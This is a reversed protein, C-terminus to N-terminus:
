KPLLVSDVSYLVGNFQPFSAEATSATTGKGDLVVFNGSQSSVTLLGGQVTKLEAKGQGKRVMQKLTKATIAGPVVHYTLLAKLAAAHGPMLLDELQGPPLKDFADNSPAFVTFPGPGELGDILGATKLAAILTTHDKSNQLNEVVNKQPYMAAGGVIPIKNQRMGACGALLLVAVLVAAKASGSKGMTERLGKRNM